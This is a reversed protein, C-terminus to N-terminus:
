AMHAKLYALLAAWVRNPNMGDDPTLWGEDMLYELVRWPLDVNCLLIAEGRQRARYRRQREAGSLAM